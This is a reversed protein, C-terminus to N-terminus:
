AASAISIPASATKTFVAIAIADSGTRMACAKLFAISAPRSACSIPNASFSLVASAVLGNVDNKEFPSLGRGKLTHAVIMQPQQTITKVTRLATLVQAKTQDDLAAIGSSLMIQGGMLSRRLTDSLERIKAIKSDCLATSM